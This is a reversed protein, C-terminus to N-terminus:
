RVAPASRSLSDIADQQPLDLVSSTRKGTSALVRPLLAEAWALVRKASELADSHIWWIAVTVHQLAYGYRPAMFRRKEYM